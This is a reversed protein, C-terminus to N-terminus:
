LEQSVFVVYDYKGPMYKIRIKRGIPANLNANLTAEHELNDDGFYKVYCRYITTNEGM